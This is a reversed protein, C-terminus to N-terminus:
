DAAGSNLKNQIATRAQGGTRAVLGLVPNQRILNIEDMLVLVIARLIKMAPDDYQISAVARLLNRDANVWDFTSVLTQAQSQQVGTAGPGFDIIINDQTGRVGSVPIGAAVLERNLEALEYM